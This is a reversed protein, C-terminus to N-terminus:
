WNVGLHESIIDIVRNTNKGDRYRFYKQADIVDHQENFNRLVDSISLAFSASFEEDYRLYLGPTQSYEKYDFCYFIVKRENYIFDWTVSSYDTILMDCKRIYDTLNDFDSLVIINSYDSSINQKIKPHLKIFLKRSGLAVSVERCILSNLHKLYRDFHGSGYLSWDRWTFFALVDQGLSFNAIEDFRPYGTVVVSKPEAGMQCSKIDGEFKSSACHIDADINKFYDIPLKKLGEFGHNVNIKLGKLFKHLGPAIDSNCTDIVLVQAQLGKVYARISGIRLLDAGNELGIKDFKHESVFFVNVRDDKSVLQNFLCEVNNELLGNGTGLLIIKKKARFLSFPKYILFYFSMAVMISIVFQAKQAISFRNV